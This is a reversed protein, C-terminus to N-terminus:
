PCTQVIEWRITPDPNLVKNHVYVALTTALKKDDSQFSAKHNNFRTKFSNDTVGIYEITEHAIIMALCHVCMNCNPSSIEAYFNDCVSHKLTKRCIIEKMTTKPHMCMPQADSSAFRMMLAASLIKVTKFDLNQQTAYTHGVCSAFRNVSPM